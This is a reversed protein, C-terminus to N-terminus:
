QIRLTRELGLASSGASRRVAISSACAFLLSRWVTTEIREPSGPGGYGHVIATSWCAPGQSARQHGQHEDASRWHLVEQTARHHHFVSAASCGSDPLKLKNILDELQDIFDLGLHCNQLLVWTGNATASAIARMAVVDQGEGMSVCEVSTRKKKALTELADTPDAGASLLYIVPTTSNMENLVSETTYTAPDTYKPGMVPLRSGHHDIGEVKKIFDLVALLTRDMRMCRVLLLRYFGLLVEEEQAMRTEIIPVPFKEPENENYWNVFAAENADIDAIIGKFLVFDMSLQNLNLWAEDSM